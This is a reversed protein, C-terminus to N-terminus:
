TLPQAAGPTTQTSVISTGRSIQLVAKDATANDTFSAHFATQSRWCFDTEILVLIDGNNTSSPYTCAISSVKNIHSVPLLLSMVSLSLLCASMQTVTSNYIQLKRLRQDRYGLLRAYRNVSAFGVSCSACALSSCSTPSFRDWSRPKFLRSRM